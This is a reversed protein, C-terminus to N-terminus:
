AYKKGLSFSVTQKLFYRWELAFSIFLYPFSINRCVHLLCSTAPELCFLSKSLMMWHDSFTIRVHKNSRLLCPLLITGKKRLSTAVENRFRATPFPNTCTYHRPDCCILFMISMLVPRKEAIFNCSWQLVKNDFVSEYMYPQSKCSEELVPMELGTTTASMSLCLSLMAIDCWNQQSQSKSYAPCFWFMMITRHTGPCTRLDYVKQASIWCHSFSLTNKCEQSLPPIM